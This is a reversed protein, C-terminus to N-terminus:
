FDKSVLLFYRKNKVISTPPKYVVSFDYLIPDYARWLTFFFNIPIKEFHLQQHQKWKWLWEEFTFFFRTFKLLFKMKICLLSSWLILVYSIEVQRQKVHTIIRRLIAIACVLCGSPLLFFGGCFLVFKTEM